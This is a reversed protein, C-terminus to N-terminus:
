GTRWTPYVTLAYPIRNLAVAGIRLMKGPRM